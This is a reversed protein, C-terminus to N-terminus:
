GFSLYFCLIAHNIGNDNAFSKFILTILICFSLVIVLFFFFRKLDGVIRLSYDWEYKYGIDM